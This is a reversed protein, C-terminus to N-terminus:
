PSPCPDRAAIGGNTNAEGSSRAPRCTPIDGPARGVAQLGQETTDLSDFRPRGPLVGTVTTDHVGVAGSARDLHANCAVSRESPGRSPHFMMAIEDCYDCLIPTMARDSTTTTRM